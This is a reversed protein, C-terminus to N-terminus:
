FFIGNMVSAQSCPSSHHIVGSRQTQILLPLCRSADNLSSDTSSLASVSTFRDGADVEVPGNLGSGEEAM